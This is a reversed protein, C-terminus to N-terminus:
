LVTNIIGGYDHYITNRIKFCFTIKKSKNFKLNIFKNM